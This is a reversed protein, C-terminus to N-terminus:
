EVHAAAEKASKKRSLLRTVGRITLATAGFTLIMTFFCIAVLALGQEKMLQAYELIGVGAPIFFFAMNQLLFNGLRSVHHERVPCPVILLLFLLGMAVVSGPFPITLVMAIGEGLLCVALILGLERLFSM